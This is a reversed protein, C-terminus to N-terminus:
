MSLGDTVYGSATANLKLILNVARAEGSGRRRDADMRRSLSLGQRVARPAFEAHLLWGVRWM